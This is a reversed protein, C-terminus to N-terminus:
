LIFEVFLIDLEYEMSVSVRLYNNFCLLCAHRVVSLLFLVVGWAQRVVSLIFLTLGWAHRVVSGYNLCVIFELGYLCSSVSVV